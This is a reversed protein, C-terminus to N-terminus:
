NLRTLDHALVDTRRRPCIQNAKTFTLISTASECIRFSFTSQSLFESRRTLTFKRRQLFAHFAPQHFYDNIRIQNSLGSKVTAALRFGPGLGLLTGCFETGTGADGLGEKACSNAAASEGCRGLLPLSSLSLALVAVWWL